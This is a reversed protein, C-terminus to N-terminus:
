HDSLPPPPPYLWVIRQSRFNGFYGRQTKLIEPGWGREAKCLSTPNKPLNQGFSALKGQLEVM